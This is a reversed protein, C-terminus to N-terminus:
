DTLIAKAQEDLAETMFPINTVEATERNSAILDDRTLENLGFRRAGTMIPLRSKTKIENGFESEINVNTFICDDPDDTLNDPMGASGYAYGQIRLGHYGIGFLM